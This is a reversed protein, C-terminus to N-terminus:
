SSLFIPKSFSELEGRIIEGALDVIVEQADILHTDSTALAGTFALLEREPVPVARVEPTLGHAAFIERTEQALEGSRKM